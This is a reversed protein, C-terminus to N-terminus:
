FMVYLKNIDLLNSRQRKLRFSHVNFSLRIQQFVSLLVLLLLSVYSVIGIMCKILQGFQVILFFSISRVQGQSVFQCFSDSVVYKVLAAWPSPSRLSPCEELLRFITPLIVASAKINGTLLIINIIYALVCPGQHILSRM